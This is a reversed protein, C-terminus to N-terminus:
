TGVEKMKGFGFNRLHGLKLIKYKEAGWKENDYLNIAEKTEKKTERRM